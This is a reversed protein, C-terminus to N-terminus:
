FMYRLGANFGTSTSGIAVNGFNGSGVRYTANKRNAVQVYGAYLDTNKDFFYRYAVTFYSAGTDSKNGFVGYGEVDGAYGYALILNHSPDFLGQTIAGWYVDRRLVKKWTAAAARDVELDIHEYALGIKTMTPKYNYGFGVRIASDTGKPQTASGLASNSCSPSGTNDNEDPNGCDNRTEYSVGAYIPGDAYHLAVSATYPNVTTTVPPTATNTVTPTEGMSYAALVRFGSIRPSTYHIGNDLRRDWRNSGQGTASAQQQGFVNYYGLIGTGGFPDLGITTQKGPSDWRGVILKGYPSDLGVGTNRTGSFPTGSEGDLGFEAEVQAVAKWGGGFDKQASVNLYSANNQLRMRSKQEAGTASPGKDSSVSEVAAWARGSITVTSRGAIVYELKKEPKKEAAPAAAPATGEPAPQTQASATVALLAAIVTVLLRM